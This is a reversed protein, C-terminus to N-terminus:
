RGPVPKVRVSRKCGDLSDFIGAIQGLGSPSDDKRVSRVRGDFLSEAFQQFVPFSLSGPVFGVVVLVIGVVLSVTWV